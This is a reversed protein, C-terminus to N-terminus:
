VMLITPLTLHTYSVASPNANKPLYLDHKQREHGGVAYALDLFTKTGAPILARDKELRKQDNNQAHGLALFVVFAIFRYFM